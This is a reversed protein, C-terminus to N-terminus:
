NAPPLATPTLFLAKELIWQMSHSRLGGGLTPPGPSCGHLRWAHMHGRGGERVDGVCMQAEAPQMVWGDEGGEGGGGGCLSVCGLGKGAPQSAADRPGHPHTHGAPLHTLCPPAQPHTHGAPLHTLCPPMHTHSGQLSIHLHTLCLTHTHNLWPGPGARSVVTCARLWICVYGSGRHSHAYTRVCVQRMASVHTQAQDVAVSLGFDAVKAVM